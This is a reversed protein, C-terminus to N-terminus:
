NSENPTTLLFVQNKDTFINKLVDTLKKYPISDYAKVVVLRNKIGNLVNEDQLPLHHKDINKENVKVAGAKDITITHQESNTNAIMVKVGNPSNILFLAGIFVFLLLVLSGMAAPSFNPKIKNQQKFIM